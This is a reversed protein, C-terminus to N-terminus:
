ERSAIGSVGSSKRSEVSRCRAHAFPRRTQAFNGGLEVASREIPSNLRLDNWAKAHAGRRKNPLAARQARLALPMEVSTQTGIDCSAAQTASVFDSM